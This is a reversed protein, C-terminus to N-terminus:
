LYYFQQTIICLHVTKNSKEKGFYEIELQEKKGMAYKGGYFHL